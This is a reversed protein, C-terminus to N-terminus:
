DRIGIISISDIKGLKGRLSIKHENDLPQIWLLLSSLGRKIGSTHPHIEDSNHTVINRSRKIIMFLRNAFLNDFSSFMLVMM